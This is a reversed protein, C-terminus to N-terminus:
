IRVEVYDRIVQKIEEEKKQFGVDKVKYVILGIVIVLGLVLLGRNSTKWWKKLNTEM